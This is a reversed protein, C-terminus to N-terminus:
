YRGKKTPRDRLPFMDFKIKHSVTTCYQLHFFLKLESVKNATMNGSINETDNVYLVQWVMIGLWSHFFFKDYSIIYIFNIQSINHYNFFLLLFMSLIPVLFRCFPTLPKHKLKQHVRDQCSKLLTNYM